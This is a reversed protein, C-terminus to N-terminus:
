KTKMQGMFGGKGSVGSKKEYSRFAGYGLYGSGFLWWLEGPIAEFGAAVNDFFLVMKDPFFVGVIPAVLVLSLIVLYFVYMFAPRARSTWPDESEAEATIAEYRQSMKALEGQQELAELERKAKAKDDPDPFLRDILTSGVDFLGGALIGSLAM